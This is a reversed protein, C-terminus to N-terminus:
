HSTLRGGLCSTHPVIKSYSYPVSSCVLIVEALTTNLYGMTPLTSNLCGLSLGQSSVVM